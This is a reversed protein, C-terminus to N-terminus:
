RSQPEHFPPAVHAVARWIFRMVWVPYALYYLFSCGRPFTVYPFLMDIKFLDGWLAHAKQGRVALKGLYVRYKFFMNLNSLGDTIEYDSSIFQQALVALQM